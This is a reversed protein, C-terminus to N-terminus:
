RVAGVVQAWGTKRETDVGVVVSGSVSELRGVAIREGRLSYLGITETGRSQARARAVPGRVSLAPVVMDGWTNTTGDWPDTGLWRLCDPETNDGDKDNYGGSLGVRFGAQREAEPVGKGYAEWPIFWEQVKRTAGDAFVDVQIGIQAALDEWSMELTNWSWLAEDYTAYRCGAPQQLGGMWVQFQQTSYTLLSENLGIKCGSCNWIEGADDHDFYVDIADAGWDTADARDVWTNDEVTCLLYVGDQSVAAWITLSADDTGVFGCREPFCNDPAILEMRDRGAWNGWFASVAGDRAYGSGADGIDYACLVQDYPDDCQACVNVVAVAVTVACAAMIAGM